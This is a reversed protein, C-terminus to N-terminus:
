KSSLLAFLFTRMKLQQVKSLDEGIVFDGVGLRFPVQTESRGGELLCPLGPLIRVWAVRNIM